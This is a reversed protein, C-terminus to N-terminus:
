PRTTLAANVVQELYRFDFPKAVYDFAGLRLTARAVVEDTNATAMVVAISADIARIRGLMEVGGMGPMAIDLFIVDPRAGTQILMLADGGDLAVEVEYGANVFYERLLEAVDPEDDVVLIRPRRFTSPAM